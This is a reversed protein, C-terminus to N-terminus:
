SSHRHPPKLRAATRTRFVVAIAQDSGLRSSARLLHAQRLNVQGPDRAVRSRNRVTKGADADRRVGLGAVLEVADDAFKSFSHSASRHVALVRPQIQL